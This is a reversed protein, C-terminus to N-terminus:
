SPSSQWDTTAAPEHGMPDPARVAQPSPFPIQLFLVHVHSHRVPQLPYAHVTGTAKSSVVEAPAEGMKTVTAGVEEAELAEVVPESALPSLVSELADVEAADEAAEVPELADVVSTCGVVSEDALEIASAGITRSNRTIAKSYSTLYM